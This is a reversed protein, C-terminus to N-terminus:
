YVEDRIVDKTPFKPEIRMIHNILQTVLGTDIFNFLGIWQCGWMATEVSVRAICRVVPPVM